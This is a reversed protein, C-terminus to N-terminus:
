KSRLSLNTPASAARNALDVTRRVTWRMLAGVRGHAAAEIQVGGDLQRQLHYMRAEVRNVPYAVNRVPVGGPTTGLECGHHAHGHVALDAGAADIAAALTGSGLVPYLREPEGRLTGVVPAYHTLAVRLDAELGALAGAFQDAREDGPDPRFGGGFGMTGAVGLRIGGITVVTASDDLVTVGVDTLRATLRAGGSRGGHHDHNGLVAVVPLGLDCVEAAVCAAEQSSGQETLDGALLLVDAHHVLRLLAPRFRGARSGTMHLDGVAALRVAPGSGTTFASDSM